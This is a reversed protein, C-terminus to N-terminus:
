IAIQCVFFAAYVAIISLVAIFSKDARHTSFYHTIQIAACFNLLPVYTDINHFDACMAFVTFLMVVAFAGSFARARANYAITKLVGLAYCVLMALTTFGIVVLLLFIHQLDIASFISGLEPFVIEDPSIIGYGLLLIWPTAIGMLAASVTRGSFIRMQACGILMAPIYIVYCYQTASFASLIFSIMFVQRTAAPDRYCNFLLYMCLPVVVALITGTSLHLMVSPTALQMVLFLPAYLYTLARLVNHVKNFMLAIAITCGSCALASFFNLWGSSLWSGAAPLVFGTDAPLIDDAGSIHCLVACVLCVFAAALAFGRSHLLATIQAPRM